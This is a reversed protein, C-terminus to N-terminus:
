FHSSIKTGLKHAITSAPITLIFVCITFAYWSLSFQEVVRIAIGEILYIELSIKGLYLAIKNKTSGYAYIMFLVILPMLNPFLFVTLFSPILSFLSNIIGISMTILIIIEMVIAHKTLAKRFAKEYSAIIMGLIFSPQSLWWWGGFHAMYMGIISASTLFATISICQIRKHSMKCAFYFAIYQYIIAYMFWSSPLPTVGRLLNCIINSLKQHNVICSYSICAITLTVFVPLLKSLRHKFFNSLYAKGKKQYSIMLGYGSIFFFMSVLTTGAYSFLGIPTSTFRQGIHHCVILIAL